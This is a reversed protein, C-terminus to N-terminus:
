KSNEKNKENKEKHIEALIKEIKLEKMEDYVFSLSPSYKMFLKQSLKHRIYSTASKIGEFGRKKEEESGMFSIMIKANRYDSSLKVSTITFFGIRPDRV